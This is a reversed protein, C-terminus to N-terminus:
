LCFLGMEDRAHALRARAITVSDADNDFGLTRRGQLICAYPFTGSGAFPDLVIDGPRSGLTVLWSALMLPKVTPHANSLKNEGVKLPKSEGTGSRDGSVGTLGGGMTQRVREELRECGANKERKGPKPVLLFPFTRRAREPLKSVRESWWADLSFYRSFSGSDGYFTKGDDGSTKFKGYIEGGFGKQGSKVPAFAGRSPIGLADDSVLLNAPFRGASSHQYLHPTATREGYLRDPPPAKKNRPYNIDGDGAFPIRCDDLWTIGKANALAQDLYTKEDLPKMAVLVVEVAPKPQFGAFSGDLALAEPTAPATIDRLPPYAEGGQWDDNREGRMVKDWKEPNRGRVRSETRVVEREAGLRKDVAKGINQAKPFGSAYAWYIPSFATVFGAETLRAINLGLVDQRPASMAFCFGGPKLVRLAERWASVAPVEIDWKKGMFRYGYPPDTLVLDICAEPLMSAGLEADIQYVEDLRYPGLRNM